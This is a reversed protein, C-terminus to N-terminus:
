KQNRDGRKPSHRHWSRLLKLPPNLPTGKHEEKQASGCSARLGSASTGSGPNYHGGPIPRRTFHFGPLISGDLFPYMMICRRVKVAANLVCTTSSQTFLACRAASGQRCCWSSGCSSERQFVSNRPTDRELLTQLGSACLACLIIWHPHVLPKILCAIRFVLHCIFVLSASSSAVM